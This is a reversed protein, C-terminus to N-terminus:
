LLTVALSPQGSDAATVCPKGLAARSRAVLWERGTRGAVPEANSRSRQEVAAHCAHVLLGM